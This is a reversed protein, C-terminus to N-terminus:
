ECATPMWYINSSHILLHTAPSHFSNQVWVLPHSKLGYEIMLVTLMLFDNWIQGEGIFHSPLIFLYSVILLICHSLQDRLQSITSCDGRWWVLTKLCSPPFSFHTWGSAIDWAAALLAIQTSVLSGSSFQYYERRSDTDWSTEDHPSSFDGSFLNVWSFYQSWGAVRSVAPYVKWSQSHFLVRSLRRVHLYFCSGQLSVDRQIGTNTCYLLHGWSANLQIKINM